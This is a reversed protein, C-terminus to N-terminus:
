VVANALATEKESSSIRTTLDSVIFGQGYEIRLRDSTFARSAPSFAPHQLSIPSIVLDPVRWLCVSRVLLLRPDLTYHTALLILCSFLVVM